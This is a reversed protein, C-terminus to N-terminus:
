TRTPPSATTTAAPSDSRSRRAHDIWTSCPFCYAFAACCRREPRDVQEPRAARDDVVPPAQDGARRSVDDDVGVGGREAAPVRVSDPARARGAQAREATEAPEGARAPPDEDRADAGGDELSGECGGGDDGM